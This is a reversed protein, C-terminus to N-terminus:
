YNGLFMNTIISADAMTIKGDGNVDAAKMVIGETANGLFKNTVMSADAMTVKDDGNADGVTYDSVILTGRYYEVAYSKNNTDTLEMETLEIPYEGEAMGSPINLTMTFVDGDNGDFPFGATGLIGVRYIGDVFSKSLTHCEADTRESSLSIMLQNKSNRAVSVGEPLKVYVGITQVNAANKMKVSLTVQEGVKGETPNIYLINDYKTIDTDGTPKEAKTVTVTCASKVGSGDVATATITATGEAVATVTGNSVTAVTTNSSTWTVSKDTADSPMVMATLSTTEGAKMSLSITSLAISTVKISTSAFTLKSVNKIAYEKPTGNKTIIIKNDDGFTLRPNTSFDYTDTGGYTLHVNLQMQAYTAISGMLMVFLLLIINKRM